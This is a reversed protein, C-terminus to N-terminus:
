GLNAKKDEQMKQEKKQPKPNNVKAPRPHQPQVKKNNNMKPANNQRREQNNNNPRVPEPNNPRIPEPNNPRVPEPNNPRVPEPNNPRVPEPNNPRVPEPNNPRVPESQTNNPRVPETTSNKTPFFTSKVNSGNEPHAVPKLNEVPTIKKPAPAQVGPAPTKSNATIIPHYIQMQGNKVSTGPHNSQVIMVPTIKTGTALEVESARPGAPYNSISNPTVASGNGNTGGNGNTNNASGSGYYNNVVTSNNTTNNNTTNNVTNSNTTNTIVTSNSIITNNQERPAYYNSVNQNNIQGRPAFVWQNNPINYNNAYNNGYSANVEMGPGMPAWGYDSGTQRWSVWAPGWTNGPIWMWGYMPDQAWRGYHFTAWGWQYNSKWTWGYNSMVWYGNSAYPQFDGGVNPRWVYGYEPSNIWEGYPSLNDYFTQYSSPQQPDQAYQDQNYGQSYPQQPPAQVVQQPPPPDRYVVRTPYCSMASLVVVIASFKIFLKM